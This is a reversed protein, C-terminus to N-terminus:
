IPWQREGVGESLCSCSCMPCPSRKTTYVFEVSLIKHRSPFSRRAVVCLCRERIARLSESRARVSVCVCLCRSLPFTLTDTENELVVIYARECAFMPVTVAM